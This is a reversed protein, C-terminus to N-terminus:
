GHLIDDIRARLTESDLGSVRVTKRRAQLGHTIEVARRPVELVEALYECLAANAAGDVPPATLGLKLSGESIGRLGSRSARPTVRVEFSVSDASERVALV